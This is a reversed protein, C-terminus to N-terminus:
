DGDLLVDLIRQADSLVHPPLNTQQRAM